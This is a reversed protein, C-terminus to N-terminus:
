FSWTISAYGTHANYDQQHLFKEEYSYHQYGVNLRLKDKLRLSIRAQPSNFTLPFTQAAIFAAGQAPDLIARPLSSALPAARGDGTDRVRNLGFYLDIRKYLTTRAGINLSHINSVFASRDGEVFRSNAFYAIGSLSDLHLKSYGADLSLWPRPTYTADFGAVRSRASYSTISAPNFNYNTKYNASLLLAKARYQARAGLSHYNKESIPYIPRNTRGVEADLSLRLQRTPQIRIGAVGSNLRNEQQDAILGKAPDPDQYDISRIQRYSFQYGGTLGLWKTLRVNADTQNTWTQIGLYQFGILAFGSNANNFEKYLSDGEMRISSVSTHNTITVLDSPLVSITLNGTTVPRRANGSVEIQRNASAGFRSTGNAFESFSFNNRGATHTFQGNVHLYKAAERLISLRWYPSNGTIPQTRKFSNLTTRDDPNNGPTPSTLSENNTEEYKEWGHLLNIRFGQLDAMAGLRYENRLRHINAFYPFEDGRSDFYQVTSLAPGNQSNRSYGALFRIKSQPLLILDHDQLQRTTNIFHQGNAIPLGPNFYDNSRWLFDYRYLANKQIRLSSFQYPDNGLGQVNILLEDFYKGHGQKSNISLSGGLLRLGNAFNVDSKYTGLNGDVSRLRYGTEFSNTINYDGWNEGRVTGTQQPTPAVTPQATIIAPSLTIILLITSRM